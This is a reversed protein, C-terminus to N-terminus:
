GMSRAVSIATRSVSASNSLFLVISLMTKAHKPSSSVPQADATKQEEDFVQSLLVRLDPRLFDGDVYWPTRTLLPHAPLVVKELQSSVRELPQERKFGRALQHRKLFFYPEQHQKIRLQRTSHPHSKRQADANSHVSGVARM